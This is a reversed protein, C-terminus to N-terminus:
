PAGARFESSMGKRAHVEGAPDTLFCVFGYRRGAILDVAFTGTKDPERPPVGAFPPIFRRETGRLQADLPPLDESLPLMALKHREQGGNRVEFVVRGAPIRELHEFRYEVMTVVVVPPGERAVFPASQAPVQCASLIGLVFVGLGARTRARSVAEGAPFRDRIM